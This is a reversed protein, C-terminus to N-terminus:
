RVAFVAKQYQAHKCYKGELQIETFIMFIMIINRVAIAICEEQITNNHLM